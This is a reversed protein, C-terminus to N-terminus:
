GIQAAYIEQEYKVAKRATILDFVEENPNSKDVFVVLLLVLGQTMGIIQYRQEDDIFYNEAVVQNPDAFVESATDFSVGHDRLNRAAKDPEWTFRVHINMITVVFTFIGVSTSVTQKGERDRWRCAARAFMM